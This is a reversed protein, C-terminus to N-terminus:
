HACSPQSCPRDRPPSAGCLQLSSSPTQASARRHFREQSASTSVRPTPAGREMWVRRHRCPQCCDRRCPSMTTMLRWAAAAAAALSTGCAARCVALRRTRWSRSGRARPRPRACGRVVPRGRAAPRRRRRPGPCCQCAVAPSARWRAPRSHCRTRCQCRSPSGPRLPCTPQAAMECPCPSASAPPAHEGASSVCPWKSSQLSPLSGSPSSSPRSDASARATSARTKCRLSRSDCRHRSCSSSLCLLRCFLYRPAHPPWGTHTGKPMRALIHRKETILPQVIHYVYVDPALLIGRVM